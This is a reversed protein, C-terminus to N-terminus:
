IQMATSIQSSAEGPYFFLRGMSTLRGPLFSAPCLEFTDQEGGPVCEDKRRRSCVDRTSKCKM